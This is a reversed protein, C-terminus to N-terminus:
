LTGFVFVKVVTTGTKAVNDRAWARVNTVGAGDDCSVGYTSSAATAISAFDNTTMGHNITILDSTISASFTCTRMYVRLQGPGAGARQVYAVNGEAPTLFAAEAEAETYYRDDHTHAAAPRADSLRTDANDVLKNPIGVAVGSTGVLANNEAQTPIRLDANDVLKNTGSVATSSTGPLAAKEATTPTRPEVSDLRVRIAADAATLVADAAELAAVAANLQAPTAAGISAPSVADRGGVAHLPAHDGNLAAGPFPIPPADTIATLAHWEDGIRAVIVLDGVALSARNRVDLLQQSIVFDDEGETLVLDDEDIATLVLPTVTVVLARTPPPNVKRTEDQAAARVAQALAGFEGSM